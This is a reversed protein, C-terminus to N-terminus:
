GPRRVELSYNLSSPKVDNEAACYYIGYDQLSQATINYAASDVGTAVIRGDKSISVLPPPYGTFVCVFTVPVPNGLTRYVPGKTLENDYPKPEVTSFLTPLCM